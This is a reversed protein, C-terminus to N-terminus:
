HLVSDRSGVASGIEASAVAKLGLGHRYHEHTAMYPQVFPTMYYRRHEPLSVYPEFIGGGVDNLWWVGNTEKRMVEGLYAVIAAFLNPIELIRRRPRIKKLAEEVIDLSDFSLDL